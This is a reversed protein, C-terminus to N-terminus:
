NHAHGHSHSHGGGSGKAKVLRVAVYTTIPVALILGLGGVLTRVIETSVNEGSIILRIPAESSYFLLILPLAAGTYALALTNVLAGVHERGVRMAKHFIEKKTLSDNALKLERVVAAQTIAIDDLVGLTGIIIGGLLLGRFDLAGGTQMNLFVTEDSFFGILKAADVAFGALLSTICVASVTGILAALSERNFGHTALIAFVLIGSAVMTSAVLPNVGKLLLPILIFVIAAISVALALLSRAGQKRGFLIVAVAFIAVLVMINGLRDAERVSHIEDGNITKLYNVFLKDGKYFRAYDNQVEVVEGKGPGELFEVELSQVLVETGLGPLALVEESKVEVVKARYIGQLDVYLEQAPLAIPACLVCAALLIKAPLGTM